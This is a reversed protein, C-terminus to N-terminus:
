KEQTDSLHRVKVACMESTQKEVAKVVIGFAGKGNYGIFEFIEGFLVTSENNLPIDEIEKGEFFQNIINSEVPTVPKCKHFIGHSM